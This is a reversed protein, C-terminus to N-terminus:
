EMGNMHQYYSHRQAATMREKKGKMPSFYLFVWVKLLIFVCFFFFPVREYVDICSFSSRVASLSMHTLQNKINAHEKKENKQLSYIANMAGDVYVCNCEYIILHRTM